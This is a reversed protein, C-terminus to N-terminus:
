APRAFYIGIVEGSWRCRSALEELASRSEVAYYGGGGSITQGERMVGVGPLDLTLPSASILTTGRPWVVPFANGEDDVLGVCGAETITLAGSIAAQDGTLFGSDTALAADENEHVNVGSTCGSLAAAAWCLLLFGTILSRRRRKLVLEHHVAGGVNVTAPVASEPAVDRRLRGATAPRLARNPASAEATPRGGVDRSRFLLVVRVGAIIVTLVALTGAWLM